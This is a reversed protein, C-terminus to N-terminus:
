KPCVEMTSVIGQVNVYRDVLSTAKGTLSLYDTTQAICSSIVQYSEASLQLNLSSDKVNKSKAKAWGGQTFLGNEKVTVTNWWM